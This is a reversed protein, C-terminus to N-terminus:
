LAPLLDLDGPLDGAAHLAPLSSSFSCSHLFFNGGVAAGQAAMQQVDGLADVRAAADQDKPPPDLRHHEGGIHGNDLVDVGVRHDGHVGEGGLGDDGLGNDLDGVYRHEHTHAAANGATLPGHTQRRLRLM